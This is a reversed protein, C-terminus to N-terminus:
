LVPRFKDGFDMFIVKKGDALSALSQNIAKIRPRAWFDAPVGRPFIGQVLIAAEPCRKQYEGIIAKVGAVIQENTNMGLNNTGILLVVLKPHLGDLQGNELRWLVHETRDAAIGFDFANLKAYHQTWVDKGKTQWFDTISDGDFILDISPMKKSQDLNTQVRQLWDVHPEPTIASENQPLVPLPWALTGKAHADLVICSSAAAFVALHFFCRPIKM